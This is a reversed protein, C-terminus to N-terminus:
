VGCLERLRNVVVSNRLSKLSLIEDEDGSGVMLCAIAVESDGRAIAELVDRISRDQEHFWLLFQDLRPHYRAPEMQQLWRYTNFVGKWRTPLEDRLGLRKKPLRREFGTMKTFIRSIPRVGVCLGNVRYDSHHEMQLFRVQDDAILNKAPDMKVLMGLDNLLIESLRQISSIGGFTIVGDDGNFLSQRVHGGRSDRRAAYHWVWAQVISDVWNTWGSGSPVGGTRETGHYYKDPLFIGTRMFAEFLFEFAGRSEWSVWSAMVRRVRSLVEAPVSADYQTFDVSLVEGPNSDLIATVAADVARQGRWAAFCPLDRFLQFFPVQFRKEHNTLARCYMSLARSKAYQYFGVAQTRSTGICPYDSADTLPFGREEIRCSELYYYLNGQDTTCRPFGFNTDRQFLCVADDLPIPSIRARGCPWLKMVQQDAYDAAVPNLYVDRPAFYKAFKAQLSLGGDPRSVSYPYNTSSSGCCVQLREGERLSPRLSDFSCYAWLQGLMSRRIEDADLEPDDVCARLAGLPAVHDHAEGRDLQALFRSLIDHDGATCCWNLEQM